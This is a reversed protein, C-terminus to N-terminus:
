NETDWVKRVVLGMGRLGAPSHPVTVTVTWLGPIAPVVNARYPAYAEHSCFTGPDIPLYVTETFVSDRPDKWAMDLQLQAPCERADIRTYLDFDFHATSDSMDVAFCYPGAGRLFQEISSPRHCSLALLALLVLCFRRM